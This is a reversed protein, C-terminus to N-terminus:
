RLEYRLGADAVFLVSQQFGGGKVGNGRFMPKGEVFLHTRKVVAVTNGLRLDIGCVIFVGFSVNPGFKFKETKSDEIVTGNYFVNQTPSLALYDTASRYQTSTIEATGNYNAGLMIGPGGFISFIGKDNFKYLLTAELNISKCGYKYTLKRSNVSDREVPTAGSFYMTDYHRTDTKYVGSNLLYFQSFYNVGLKLWPGDVNKMEQDSLKLTIGAQACMGIAPVSPYNGGSSSDNYPYKHYNNNDVEMLDGSMLKSDPTIKKFDKQTISFVPFHSQGVSIYLDLLEAKTKPKQASDNQSFVTISVFLLCTTIFTVPTRNIKLFKM